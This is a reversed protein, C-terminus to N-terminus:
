WIIHVTNSIILEMIRSFDKYIFKRTAETYKIRIEKNKNQSQQTKEESKQSGRNGFSFM